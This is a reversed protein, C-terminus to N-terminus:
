KKRIPSNDNNNQVFRFTWLTCFTERFNKEEHFVLDKYYELKELLTLAFCSSFKNTGLHKKVVFYTLQTIKRWNNQHFFTKNFRTVDILTPICVNKLKEINCFRYYILNTYESFQFTKKNCEEKISIFCKRNELEKFFNILSFQEDRFYSSKYAKSKLSKCATDSSLLKNYDIITFFNSYVAESVSFITLIYIFVFVM